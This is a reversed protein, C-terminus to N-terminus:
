LDAFKNGTKETDKGFSVVRSRSSPTFGLDSQLGRLLTITSHLKSLLPSPVLEGDTERRLTGGKKISESITLFQDYVVAWESFIGFDLTSLMGEPAQSLAFAWIEKASDTLYEPPTMAKLDNQPTPEAPNARCKQLTGQLKKVATPKRPRGGM